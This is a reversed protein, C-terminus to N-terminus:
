THPADGAAGAGSQQFCSEFTMRFRDAIEPHEDVFFFRRYHTDFVMKFDSLFARMAQRRKDIEASPVGQLVMPAIQREVRAAINAPTTENYYALMINLFHREASLPLFAGGTAKTMAILAQAGDGSEFLTRYFAVTGTELVDLRITETPGVVIRAPARQTPQMLTAVDAGFCTAVFVLLRLGTARNVEVLYPQLEHWSFLEGSALVMGRSATSIGSQRKEGHAELHVLPFHGVQAQAVIALMAARFEAKDKVAHYVVKVPTPATLSELEESLRLGSRGAFGTDLSEIIHIRDFRLTPDVSWPEPLSADSV